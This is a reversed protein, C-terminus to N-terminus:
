LKCLCCKFVNIIAYMKLVREFRLVNLISYKLKFAVLNM